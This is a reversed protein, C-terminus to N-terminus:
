ITPETFKGKNPNNYKYGVDRLNQYLPVFEVMGVKILATEQKIQTM